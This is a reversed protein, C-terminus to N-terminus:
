HHKKSCQPSISSNVNLMLVKGYLMNPSSVTLLFRFWLCLLQDLALKTPQLETPGVTPAPVHACTTDEQTTLHHFIITGQQSILFKNLWTWGPSRSALVGLFQM